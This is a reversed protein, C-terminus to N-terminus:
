YLEDVIQQVAPQYHTYLTIVLQGGDSTHTVDIKEVKMHLKHSCIANIINTNKVKENNM